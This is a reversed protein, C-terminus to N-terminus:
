SHRHLVGRSSNMFCQALLLLLVMLSLSGGSTSTNDDGIVAPGQGENNQVEELWELMRQVSDSTRRASIPLGSLCIDEAVCLDLAHKGETILHLESSNFGCNVIRRFFDEPIGALAESAPGGDLDGALADCMRVSQSFPLVTDQMGHLMFVPPTAIQEDVIRATLTNRTILPANVDLTDISQGVVTELIGQATDSDIEGNVIKAAFDTFDVPAYFLVAADIDDAREVALVASMHGGASQGFVVPKGSAGYRGANAVVWDLADGADDLVDSLSADNCAANGEDTDILRYFPAFVVHGQNAFQTAIAEIGLAGSSRRQWSGGHFAILPKLPQNSAAPEVGANPTLTHIRMELSCVGQATVVEKYSVRQTFPQVLGDLSLAGIDFRTGPSLTWQGLKQADAEANGLSETDLVYDCYEIDSTSAFDLTTQCQADTYITDNDFSGQTLQGTGIAECGNADLTYVSPHQMSTQLLGAAECVAVNGLLDELDAHAQSTPACFGSIILVSLLIRM